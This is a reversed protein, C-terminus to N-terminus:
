RTIRADAAGAHASRLPSTLDRRGHGPSPSKPDPNRHEPQNTTSHAVRLGVILLFLLWIAFGLLGPLLAPLTGNLVLASQTSGVILLAAGVLTTRDLWRPLYGLAATTRSLGYLAIALAVWNMLFLVTSLGSLVEVHVVDLNGISSILVADAAMAASLTGMTMAAGLLGLVAPFLDHGATRAETWMASAFVGLLVWAVPVLVTTGWLYPDADTAWRAIEAPTAAPDPRSTGINEVANIAVVTAVFAVACWGSIRSRNM